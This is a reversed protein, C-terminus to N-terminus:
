FAFDRSEARSTVWQLETFEEASFGVGFRGWGSDKVGGFPMQPEDNVSQDNVHVIGAELRRAISLGRHTDSTLVSATLGFQSANALRVATAADDVIELIVVPGFTEDVSIEAEPPVDTLVTAPYCPPSAKGGVLVRAGLAVAEDVRREILALAWKNIVPGIVTGSDLPDGTPLGGVKEVFRRTFEEAIEREVYIRRVCMCIQGQHVFAGYAAADVAYDLDADALVILPNQGSLQLVMRKLHRGALEALRRGTATSGTFNIRRVLPHAMLEGGVIGAEGPAHTVVNLVGAPLGAETFVEAWIAGGTHPSDESPKLVLTNGLALPGVIARGSLILSANWPAIAGVVGVPRRVAMATTGRVDSPMLQGVPLYPLAAAQRLLSVAFNIQVTAFHQGCGTEAALDRTLEDRRGELIDAARLFILQRNGPLEEAWSPFARHAATIARRTDEAHGAVVRAFTDGTWPNCDDYERGEESSCWRGDIYQSM